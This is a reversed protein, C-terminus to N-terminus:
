HVQEPCSSNRRSSGGASAIAIRKSIGGGSGIKVRYISVSSKRWLTSCEPPCSWCFRRQFRLVLSLGGRCAPRLLVVTADVHISAVM